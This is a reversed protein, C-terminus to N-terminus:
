VGILFKYLAECLGLERTSRVVAPLYFEWSYTGFCMSPNIYGNLLMDFEHVDNAVSQLNVKFSRRDTLSIDVIRGKRLVAGHFFFFGGRVSLFMLSRLPKQWTDHRFVAM